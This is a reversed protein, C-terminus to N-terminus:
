SRSGGTASRLDIVARASWQAHMEAQICRNARDAMDPALWAAVAHRLRKLLRPM